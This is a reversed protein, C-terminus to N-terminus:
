SAKRAIYDIFKEHNKESFPEEVIIFIINQFDEEKALDKIKSLTLLNDNENMSLFIALKIAYPTNFSNNFQNILIHENGINTSFMTIEFERYINDRFIVKEIEKDVTTYTLVSIIDKFQNRVNEKAKEIERM